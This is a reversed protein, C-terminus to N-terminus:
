WKSAPCMAEPLTTKARLRCGCGKIYGNKKELSVNNTKPDLWKRSDCTEGLGPTNQRYLPCKKCIQIRKASIEEGLNFWENFHGQIIQKGQQLINNSGM